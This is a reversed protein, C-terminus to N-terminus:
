CFDLTLTKRQVSSKKGRSINLKVRLENITKRNIIIISYHSFINKSETLIM